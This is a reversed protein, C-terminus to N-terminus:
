RLSADYAYEYGFVPYTKETNWSSTRGESADGESGLHLVSDTRTRHPPTGKSNRRVVQETFAPSYDDKNDNYDRQTVGHTNFM